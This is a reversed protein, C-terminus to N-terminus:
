LMADRAVVIAPPGLIPETRVRPRQLVPLAKGKPCGRLRAPSPAAPFDRLGWVPRSCRRPLSMAAFAFLLIMAFITAIIGYLM